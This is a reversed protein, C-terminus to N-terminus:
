SGPFFYLATVRLCMRCSWRWSPPAPIIERIPPLSVVAALTARSTARLSPTCMVSGALTNEIPVLCYRTAGGSVSAFADAFTDCPAVKISKGLLKYVAEESFAGREGQFAVTVPPM